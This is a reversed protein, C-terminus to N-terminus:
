SCGGINDHASAGCMFRGFESVSVRMKRTGSSTTTSSVFNSPRCSGRRACPAPRRPSRRREGREGVPEVAIERAAALLDGGSPWNMSGSASLSSVMAASMESTCISRAGAHITATMMPRSNATM